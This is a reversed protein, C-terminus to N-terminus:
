RKRAVVHFLHWHKPTGTATQGDEEVEEFQELEFADFLATAAERTHFTMEDESAWEDREGFLQGAFRGGPALSEVIRSWLGTFESPRAFPLAFSSNVLQCRPWEADVFSAVSTHLSPHDGVSARLCKLAEPEADIAYVTWGRRLLELTDRGTGCGLDVAIGPRSQEAEFLALAHRLTERPDTGAAEYYRIWTDSM